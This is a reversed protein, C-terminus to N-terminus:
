YYLKHNAFMKVIKKNLSSVHTPKNTMNRSSGGRLKHHTLGILERANSPSPAIIGPAYPM